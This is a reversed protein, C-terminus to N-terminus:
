DSVALSPAEAIVIREVVVPALPRQRPGFRGHEDIEVRAIAEVVDGGRKVRGFVTHRGDLHPKPELVIFFQSGGSDPHGKNAMSLVGPEHPAENPEDAITYGPGGLGDNRPNADKTNPDGGQIMFGPIVRHFSTGDYFGESALKEFNAVTEPALGRYLEVEIEGFGAVVLTATPHPGEPWTFPTPEAAAEAGDGGAEASRAEADGDEVVATASDGGSGGSCGLAAFVATVLLAVGRGTALLRRRLCGAESTSRQSLTEDM